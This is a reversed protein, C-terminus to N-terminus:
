HLNVKSISIQLKSIISGRIKALCTELAAITAFAVCSQCQGQNQIPGVLGADVANYSRPTRPRLSRNRNKKMKKYNNFFRESEEDYPLIPKPESGDTPKTYNVLLGTSYLYAFDLFCLFCVAALLKM